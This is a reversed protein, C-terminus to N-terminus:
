SWRSMRTKAHQCFSQRPTLPDCSSTICSRLCRLLSSKRDSARATEELLKLTAPRSPQVDVLVRGLRRAGEIAPVEHVSPEDQPLAAPMKALVIWPLKGARVYNAFGDSFEQEGSGFAETFAQNPHSMMRLAHMYRGLAQAAQENGMRMYHM